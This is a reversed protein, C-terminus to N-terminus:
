KGFELVDLAMLFGFRFGEAYFNDGEECHLSEISVNTKKYLAILEPFPKLKECLENDNDMVIDLLRSIEATTGIEEFHGREKNFMQLIASKNKM